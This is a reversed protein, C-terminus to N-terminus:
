ATKVAVASALLRELTSTESAGYSSRHGRGGTFHSAAYAFSEMLVSRKGDISISVPGSGSATAIQSWPNPSSPLPQDSITGASFSGLVGRTRNRKGCAGTIGTVM